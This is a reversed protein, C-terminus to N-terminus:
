IRKGIVCREGEFSIFRRVEVHGNRAAYHLVTNGYEDKASLETFDERALLVKLVEVHGNEAAWHLATSGKENKANLETFDERALLVKLVEVHGNRAAAHLATVIGDAGAQRIDSCTVPDDPGFWRWTELM